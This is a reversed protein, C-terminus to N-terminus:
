GHVIALECALAQRRALERPNRKSPWALSSLVASQVFTAVRLTRVTVLGRRLAATSAAPDHDAVVHSSARFMGGPHGRLAVPVVSVLDM